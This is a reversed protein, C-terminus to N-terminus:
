YYVMGDVLTLLLLGCKTCCDNLSIDGNKTAVSIPLPAILVVEVLFDLVGTLCINGGGNVLSPNDWTNPVSTALSVRVMVDNALSLGCVQPLGLVHTVSDM